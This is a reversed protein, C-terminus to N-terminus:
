LFFFLHHVETCFYLFSIRKNQVQITLVTGICIKASRYSKCVVIGKTPCFLCMKQKAGTQFLSTSFQSPQIGAKDSRRPLEGDGPPAIIVLLWDLSRQLM